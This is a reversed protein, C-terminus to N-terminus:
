RAAAVAAYRYLVACALDADGTRKAARLDVLLRLAAGLTLNRAWTDVALAELRDVDAFTRAPATATSNM